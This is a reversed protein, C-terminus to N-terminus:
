LALEKITTIVKRANEEGVQSLLDKAMTLYREKSYGLPAKWSEYHWNCGDIHTHTCLKDHLFEAFDLVLKNEFEDERKQKLVKLEKEARRLEEEKAVIEKDIRM